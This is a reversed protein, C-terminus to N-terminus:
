MRVVHALALWGALTEDKQEVACLAAQLLPDGLLLSFGGGIVHHRGRRGLGAHQKRQGPGLAQVHAFQGVSSRAGDAM